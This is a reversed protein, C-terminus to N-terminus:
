CRALAKAAAPCSPRRARSCSRRWRRRRSPHGDIGLEHALARLQQEEVNWQRYFSGGVLVLRIAQGRQTVRRVARLLVDVGKVFQLRGIYVIQQPDRAM